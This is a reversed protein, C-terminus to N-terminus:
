LYICASKGAIGRHPLTSRYRIVYNGHGCDKDPNDNLECTPARASVFENQIIDLLMGLTAQIDEGAKMLRWAKYVAATYVILGEEYYDYDIGYADLAHPLQEALDQANGKGVALLAESQFREGGHVSSM